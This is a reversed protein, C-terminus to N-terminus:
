SIYGLGQLKKKIEDESDSGELSKVEKELAHAVFEDVSAYGALEAFKKVRAYLEKSIKIKPEFV